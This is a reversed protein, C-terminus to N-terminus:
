YILPVLRKTRSAYDRYAQGLAATLAQEEIHIRWM